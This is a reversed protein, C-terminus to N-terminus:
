QIHSLDKVAYSSPQHLAQVKLVAFLRALDFCRRACFLAPRHATCESREFRDQLATRETCACAVVLVSLVPFVSACAFPAPPPQPISLAGAELADGFPISALVLETLRNPDEEKQIAAKMRARLAPLEEAAGDAAAEPPPLERQSGRREMEAVSPPPEDHITIRSVVRSASPSGGGGGGGGGARASGRSPARDSGFGLSSRPSLAHTAESPRSTEATSARSAAATRRRADQRPRRGRGGGEGEDEASRASGGDGSPM